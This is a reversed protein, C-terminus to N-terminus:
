ISKTFDSSETFSEDKTEELYTLIEHTTETPSKEKSIFYHSKILYKYGEKACTSIYYKAARLVDEKTYQPYETLLWTMNKIAMDRLGFCGPKKGKFLERYEDIWSEIDMDTEDNLLELFKQRVICDNPAKNGNIKLWGDSQLLEYIEGYHSDTYGWQRLVLREVAKFEKKHILLLLVFQDITLNSKLLSDLNIKLEKMCERWTVITM